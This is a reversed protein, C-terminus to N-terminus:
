SLDPGCYSLEGNRITRTNTTSCTSPYWYHRGAVTGVTIARRRCRPSWNAICDDNLQITSVFCNSSSQSGGGCGARVAAM